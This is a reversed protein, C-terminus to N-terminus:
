ALISIHVHPINRHDVAMSVFCIFTKVQLRLSKEHQPCQSNTHSFSNTKVSSNDTKPSIHGKAPTGYHKGSGDLNNQCIYKFSQSHGKKESVHAMAISFSSKM